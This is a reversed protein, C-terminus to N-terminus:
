FSQKSLNMVAHRRMNEQVTCVQDSTQRHVESLHYLLRKLHDLHRPARKMFTRAEHQGHEQRQGARERPPAADQSATHSTSEPRTVYAKNQRSLDQDIRFYHDNAQDLRTRQTALLNRLRSLELARRVVSVFIDRDFPKPVFDSAGADLATAISARDMQGSMLIFPIEPLLRKVAALLELGNMHPMQVDSIITDYTKTRISELAAMGGTCTELTFHGLRLQLTGSLAEVLAPDDDVLLVHSINRSTPPHISFSHTEEVMVADEGQRPWQRLHFHLPSVQFLSPCTEIRRLAVDDTRTPKKTSANFLSTQRRDLLAM